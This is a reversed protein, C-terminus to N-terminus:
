LYFKYKDVDYGQSRLIEVSSLLLYDSLFKLDPDEGMHASQHLALNPTADYYKQTVSKIYDVWEPHEDRYVKSPFYDFAQLTAINM